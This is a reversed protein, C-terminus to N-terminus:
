ITYGTYVLQALTSIINSWNLQNEKECQNLWVKQFAEPLDWHEYKEELGSNHGSPLFFWFLFLFDLTMPKRKVDSSDNLHLSLDLFNLM